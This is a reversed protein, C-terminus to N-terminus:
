RKGIHVQDLNVDKRRFVDFEDNDFVSSRQDVFGLREEEKKNTNPKASPSDRDNTSVRSGSHKLHPPLNDELVHNIVAEPNNGYERLCAQLCVCMMEHVAHYFNHEICAVTLLFSRVCEILSALDSMVM